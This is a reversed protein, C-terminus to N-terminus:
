KSKLDFHLPASSDVSVDVTLDSHSNYHAPLYQEEVDTPGFVPDKISKGTKRMALIEVRYRGAAIGKEAPVVFEGSVIEAGASPSRSSEQPRFAISGAPVPQGDCTVTGRIGM